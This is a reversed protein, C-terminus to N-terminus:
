SGFAALVQLVADVAPAMGQLSGCVYIAAGDDLWQALVEGSAADRLLTGLPVELVVDEGARGDKLGSEGQMGRGAAFERKHRYPNLTNLM